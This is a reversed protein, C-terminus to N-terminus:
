FIEEDHSLVCEFLSTGFVTGIATEIAKENKVAKKFHSDNKKIYSQIEKRHLGDKDKKWNLLLLNYHILSTKLITKYSEEILDEYYKEIFQHREKLGRIIDLNRPTYTAVISDSRQYYYFMPQHLIVYTNVRQMVQHAWFVDEFLVGKEFPIDRILKTQYLSEGLLTKLRKM